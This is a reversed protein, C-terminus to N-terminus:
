EKEKKKAKAEVRAKQKELQVGEFGVLELVAMDAGDGNRNGIRIVRTYGGNRDKYTPAIEEFITKVLKKNRITKLVQRRDALSGSKAFTIMRDVTKRVEKAKAVTTRVQKHDFLSGALNALVAKRHSATRNLKRGSKRHRM